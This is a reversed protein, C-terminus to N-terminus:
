NTIPNGKKFFSKLESYPVTIKIRGYIEDYLSSFTLGTKQFTYLNFKQSSIWDRFEKQTSYPHNKVQKKIYKNLYNKFSNSKKVIDYLEIPVGKKLDFNITRGKIEDNWTNTFSFYISVVEESVHEVDFWVYARRMARTTPNENINKKKIFLIQSECEKKWDALQEELYNNFTRNDIEPYLIEYSTMYDAYNISKVKMKSELGLSAAQSDQNAIKLMGQLEDVKSPEIELTAMKKGIEDTLNLEIQNSSNITGIVKVLQKKNFFYAQGKIENNNLRHLIFEVEEDNNIVGRYKNVWQHDFSNYSIKRNKVEELDILRGISGNYNTWEAEINRELVKGLIFGSTDKNKNIEALKLTNGVLHGELKLIENSRLYTMTGKCNYGDSALTVAVQNVDDINGAYHKLWQIQEPQKFFGRVLNDLQSQQASLLIPSIAFLFVFFRQM